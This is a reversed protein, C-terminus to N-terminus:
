ADDYDETLSMLFAVLANVDDESLSMGNFELPANRLAGQHALASSRIYFEVVDNFKAKSGNHFYPQSDEEDRLMPTKFRAITAPLGQDVSCNQVNACIV